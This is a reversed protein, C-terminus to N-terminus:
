KGIIKVLGDIEMRIIRVEVVPKLRLLMELIAFVNRASTLSENYTQRFLLPDLHEVTSEFATHIAAHNPNTPTTQFGVHAASPADGVAHLIKGFGILALDRRNILLNNRVEHWTNNLFQRYLERATEPNGRGMGHEHARSPNWGGKLPNDQDSSVEKLIQLEASTLLGKFAAENSVQDIIRDHIWWPWLGSPDVMSVPNNHAYSYANWSQPNELRAGAGQPDATTFRGWVNRYYRADFYDFATEFDREKGTFRRPDGSLPSGEGFAFYDHRTVTAGSSDTIARVSGLVDTHYYTITAASGAGFAATVLHGASASVQCTTSTGACAGGWGLFTQGSAPTATLTV